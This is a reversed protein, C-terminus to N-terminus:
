RQRPRKHLPEPGPVYRDGGRLHQPYDPDDRPDAFTVRKPGTPPLRSQTKVDEAWRGQEPSSQDPRHGIHGVQIPIRPAPRVVEAKEHSLRRKDDHSKSDEEPETDEEMTLQRFRDYRRRHRNNEEMIQQNDEVLRNAEQTLRKNEEMLREKETISQKQLDDFAVNASKLAKEVGKREQRAKRREENVASQKERAMQEEHRDQNEKLRKKEKSLKVHEANLASIRDKLEQIEADKGQVTAESTSIESQTTSRAALQKHLEANEKFVRSNQESAKQLKRICNANTCNPSATPAQVPSPEPKPGTSDPENDTTESNRAMDIIEQYNAFNDERGSFLSGLLSTHHMSFLYSRRQVPFIAAYFYGSCLKSGQM